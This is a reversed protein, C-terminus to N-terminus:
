KYTLFMQSVVKNIIMNFLLLLKHFFFLKRVFNIFVYKVFSVVYFLRNSFIHASKVFFFCFKLIQRISKNIQDQLFTFDSLMM